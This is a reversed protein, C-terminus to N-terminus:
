RIEWTLSVDATVAREGAAVPVPIAEAAMAKVRPAMMPRRVPMFDGRESMTLVPGLIFGAEEAYLRAKRLADRVARRRAEDRLPQPDDITFSIGNIRNSGSRVLDDLIGGLAKLDRVRVTLMNSVRYGVLKPGQEREYSKKPYVYQPTVSFGSTMMDKEEVKWREKLVAFVATMAESAARLAQRAERAQKEVGLRIIAIDPKAMVEGHGSLSLTRRAQEGAQAPMGAIAAFVLALVISVVQRRM